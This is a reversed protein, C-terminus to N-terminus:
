PQQYVNDGSTDADNHLIVSFVDATFVSGTKYAVGGGFGHGGQGGAGQAGGDADNHTITSATVAATGNASVYLGGGLGDGGNAYAGGQGGVAENHCVVSDVLTLHSTAAAVGALADWGVGIGGGYGNGGNNGTGGAGGVAANHSVVSDIITASSGNNSIDIGGGFAFGAQATGLLPNVGPGGHGAVAANGTVVCNTMLMTAFPSNSIGGGVAIGGPGTTTSGGHALNGAILSDSITLLSAYNNEIGGGFAGGGFPGGTPDTASVTANNGGLAQNNTIACGVITFTGAASAIGGATAQSDGTTAADGGDGGVSRNGNVTCNTMLVSTGFGEMMIAGANANAGPGGMAQNDLFASNSIVASSGQAQSPDYGNLGANDELAGGIGYYFGGGASIARNNVFTSDVVTLDAGGTPGGFNDIAGGASGGINDFAGGGTAQNSSFECSLVTATGLNLLGGGVVTFGVAGEATNDSVTVHDLTLHAGARNLIGGGGGATFAGSALDALTGSSHGHAVTLDAISVTESDAIAFVRSADNGSVTLHNAGLGQIAVSANVALEGSTLTITRNNLSQAFAITDGDHAAALTDRLSGVGHDATNMVTLVTPVTRDELAELRLATRPRRAPTQPRKRSSFWRTLASRFM